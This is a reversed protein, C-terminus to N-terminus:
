ALDTDACGQVTAVIRVARSGVQGYWKSSKLQAAAEAFDQVRLADCFHKFGALRTPGMNFMLNVVCEQIAEPYSDCGQFMLNSAVIAHDLDHEFLQRCREESITSGEPIADSALILHGIGVTLLGLSDKYVTLRKGEDITLQDMIKQRDM